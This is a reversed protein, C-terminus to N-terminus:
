QELAKIAPLQKGEVFELSAGGGTSVHTIKDTCGAQQLAAVSDGGGVVSVAKAAALARAVALTGHSFPEKEFMGLPGNWFVTRARGIREAFRAVTEPGIDLGLKTAAIAPGAIEGAEAEPGDAVVHDTPLSLEVGREKAKALIEAARRLKDGEVRSKGVEVGQAKLFTYAMAGGVLISDAKGLLNAIVGLKDSVKAGGLIAVFPREPKGLLQGLYKLEKRVLYGVGRDKFHGVMGATSAHARHCTGFADNVYVEALEALRASFAPENKEEGLHFRLNELLLVQGDRLDQSLKRPGDGVCDDAAIIEIELLEALRAGVPELRYKDSPKGDPRGLHSALIVRAGRAAAHRITPLAERVRTDDKVQGGELPVNFDVRIFTRRGEIPLEEINKIAM